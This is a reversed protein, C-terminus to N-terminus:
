YITKKRETETGVSEDVYVGRGPRAMTDPDPTTGMGM